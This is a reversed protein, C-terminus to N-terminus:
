LEDPKTADWPKGPKIYEKKLEKEPSMRSLTECLKLRVKEEANVELYSGFKFKGEYGGGGPGFVDATPMYGLWGNTLTSVMTFPFPSAAKIELGTKAFTEAPTSCIVLNGIQLAGLPCSLGPRIRAQERLLLTGMAFWREFTSNGDANAKELASKYNKAGPERHGLCLTEEEFTIKSFDEPEGCTIADAAAFGVRQGLIKSWKLGKRLPEPEPSNRLQTVDGCAGNLFVVTMKENIHKKVTERMYGPWDASFGGGCGVTGHCGYNVLAGTVEDKSNVAALVIVDKDVPGAPGANDPNGNGAHTVTLGSKLKQRRNHGVDEVPSKGIILRVDEMKAAANVVADAIKAPLADFYKENLEQNGRKEPPHLQINAELGLKRIEPRLGEIRQFAEEADPARSDICPGGSHTHSAACLLFGIGTRERIIRRAAEVTEAKLAPADVGAVAATRGGASFVAATVLCPTVVRKGPMEEFFNCSSGHEPSIDTEAFGARMVCSEKKGGAEDGAAGHFGALTLFLFAPPVCARPIM